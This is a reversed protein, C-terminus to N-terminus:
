VPLSMHQFLRQRIEAANFLKNRAAICQMRYDGYNKVLLEFANLIEGPEHSDVIIGCKYAALLDGVTSNRPGHYVFPLGYGIYTIVKTSFSTGAFERGAATLPDCAYGIMSRRMFIDFEDDSLHPMRHVQPGKPIKPDFAYIQYDRLSKGSRIAALFDNPWPPPCDGWGALVVGVASREPLSAMGERPVPLDFGRTVVVSEKGYRAAYKLRLRESICDMSRANVVLSEFCRRDYATFRTKSLEASIEPDDHV